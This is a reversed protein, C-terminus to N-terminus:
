NGPGTLIRQYLQRLPVSPEVGLQDLLRRRLDDYRELAEADRGARHLGCIWSWWLTERLPHRTLLRQAEILAAGPEGREIDLECRRETAQLLEEELATATDDVWRGCGLGSLPRGRWLGVGENLLAWERLPDTASCAQRRLRRFLNVDIDEDRVTLRYGGPVSEILRRYETGAAAFESRLRRVYNRVTAQASPPPKADWLRDIIEDTEVGSGRRMALVALLLPQKTGALPVPLGGVRVEVRGLLGVFVNVM